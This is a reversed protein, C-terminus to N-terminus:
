FADEDFAEGLHGGSLKSLHEFARQIKIMSEESAALNIGAFSDDEMVVEEIDGSENWYTMESTTCDFSSTCNFFLSACTNNLSPDKYLELSSINGLKFTMEIKYRVKGGSYISEIIKIADGQMSLSSIQSEAGENECQRYKDVFSVIWHKTDAANMEQAQASVSALCLVFLLPLFFANLQKM